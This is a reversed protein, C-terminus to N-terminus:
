RETGRAPECGLLHLNLPDYVGCDGCYDQGTRAARLADYLYRRHDDDRDLDLVAILADRAAPTRLDIRLGDGRLAAGVPEAEALRSAERSMLRDMDDSLAQERAARTLVNPRRARVPEGDPLAWRHEGGFGITVVGVPGPRVWQVTYTREQGAMTATVQDGGILEGATRPSGSASWREVTTDGGSPASVLRAIAYLVGTRSWIMALSRMWGPPVDDRPSEVRASSQYTIGDGIDLGDRIEVDHPYSEGTGQEGRLDAVLTAM